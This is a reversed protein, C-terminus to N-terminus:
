RGHVSLLRHARCAHTGAGEDMGAFYHHHCRPCKLYRAGFFRADAGIIGLYVSMALSACALVIALTLLFTSM